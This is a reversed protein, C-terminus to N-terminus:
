EESILGLLSESLLIWSPSGGTPEVAGTARTGHGNRRGNDRRSSPVAVAHTEVGRGTSVRGDRGHLSNAGCTPWLYEAVEGLLEDELNSWKRGKPAALQPRTAAMGALAPQSPPTQDRNSVVVTKCRQNIRLVLRNGLMWFFQESPM